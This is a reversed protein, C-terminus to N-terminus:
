SQWCSSSSLIKLLHLQIHLNYKFNFDKLPVSGSHLTTSNQKCIKDDNNLYKFFVIRFFYGGLLVIKFKSKASLSLILLDKFTKKHRLHIRFFKEV